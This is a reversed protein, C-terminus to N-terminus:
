RHRSPAGGTELLRVVGRAAETTSAAPAEGFRGAALLGALHEPTRPNRWWDEDFRERLAVRLREGEAFGAVRALLPGAEDDRAARVGDWAAHCASTLAERHAERWRVGSMGREVETAVRAAAGSARLRFLARLALARTVEAQERRSLEVRAALFGPELLLGSLLWGLAAAFTADRQSPPRREAMASRGAADLLDLWDPLGGRPRFSVRGGFAHAGPWAAVRTTEGIRLASADIGAAACASRLLEALGSRQFLGDWGPFALLRLLDARTLDGRPPLELGLERRATWALVEHWADETEDLLQDCAVVGPWDPVLGHGARVRVRVEAAQERHRAGPELAVAVAAALARRRVPDALGPLVAEAVALPTPGDPGLVPAGAEAARWAEEHAVAAREATLAAVVQLLGPEGAERLRAVTEPHTAEDHSAFLRGLAPAPELGAAHRYREEELAQALHDVVRALSDRAERDM